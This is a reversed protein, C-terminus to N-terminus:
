KSNKFRQCLPCTKGHEVLDQIGESSPSLMFDTMKPCLGLGVIIPLMAAERGLALSSLQERRQREDKPLADNLVIAKTVETQISPQYHELVKVGILSLTSADLFYLGISKSSALREIIKRHVTNAVNWDITFSLGIALNDEVSLSWNILLDTEFPKISLHSWIPLPDSIRWQDKAEIKLFARLNGTEGIDVAFTSARDRLETLYLGPQGLETMDLLPTCNWSNTVELKIGSASCIWKRDEEEFQVGSGCLCLKKVLAKENAHNDITVENFADEKGRLQFTAITLYHAKNGM